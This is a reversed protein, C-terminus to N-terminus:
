LFLKQQTCTETWWLPSYPYSSLASNQLCSNIWLGHLFITWPSLKWSESLKGEPEDLIVEELLIDEWMLCSNFFSSSVQGCTLKISSLGRGQHSLNFFSFRAQVSNLKFLLLLLFFLLKCLYAIEFTITLFM